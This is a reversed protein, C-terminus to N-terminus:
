VILKRKVLMGPETLETVAVSVPRLEELKCIGPFELAVTLTVSALAGKEENDESVIDKVKELELLTDMDVPVMENDDIVPEPM